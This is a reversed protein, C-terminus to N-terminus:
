MSEERLGHRLFGQGKRLAVGSGDLSLNDLKVKLKTARERIVDFDYLDSNYGTVIDPDYKNVSEVFRHLLENEDKVVEVGDPFQGKKFTIVKKLEDGYLSIMVWQREGRKEEVVETDFALAKLPITERDIKKITRAKVVLDADFELKFAEGEVALWDLCSIGRDALYSRYFGMQYGYEDLISGSGGRKEELTKIVDRVQTTDQPMFCFVKIFEREEGLLIRGTEEIRKVKMNRKKLLAETERKAKNLNKPLVYFYPEYTPDVVVVRKHDPTRGYLIISINGDIAEYDLDLLCIETKM